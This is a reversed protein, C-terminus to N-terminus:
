RPAERGSPSSPAGPKPHRGAGPPCRYVPEPEIIFIFVHTTTDAAYDESGQEGRAAGERPWCGGAVLGALLVPTVARGGHGGGEGPREGHVPRGHAAADPAGSVDAGAEARRTKLM